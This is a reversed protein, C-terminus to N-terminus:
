WDRIEERPDDVDTGYRRALGEGKAEIMGARVLERMMARHVGVRWLLDVFSEPRYGLDREVFEVLTPANHMASPANSMFNNIFGLSSQLVRGGHRSPRGRNPLLRQIDLELFRELSVLYSRVDTLQFPLGRTSADGCFLWGRSREFLAMNGPGTGPSAMVELRLDGARLSHGNRLPVFDLAAPVPAWFSAVFAEVEERDYGDPQENELVRDALDLLAQRRRAIESAYDRPKHMDPSFAFHDVGPFNKIGGLVDISWSTHVVRRIQAPEVGAERLGKCLGEFQSPHAANILTPHAGSLLYVNNAEQLPEPWGDPRELAIRWLQEDIEEIDYSM